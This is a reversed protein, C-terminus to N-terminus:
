YTRQEIGHAQRVFFDVGDSDLVVYGTNVIRLSQSEEYTWYGLHVLLSRITGSHSVILVSQNQHAIAVERLFLLSRAVLKEDSEIGNSLPPPQQQATVAREYQQLLHVLERQSTASAATEFTGFHRERLLETTTVTLQQQQAVIEATQRARSLDSAYAAAFTVDTLQSALRVAQQKGAETLPFDSHGQIIGRANGESEAHRALYLHAFIDQTM